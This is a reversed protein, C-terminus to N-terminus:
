VLAQNILVEFLLLPTGIGYSLCSLLCCQQSWVIFVILRPRFRLRMYLPNSSLSIAHEEPVAVM